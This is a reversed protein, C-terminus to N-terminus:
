SHMTLPLSQAKSKTGQWWCIVSYVISVLPKGVSQVLALPNLPLRNESMAMITVDGHREYHRVSVEIELMCATSPPAVCLHCGGKSTTVPHHCFALLTFQNRYRVYVENSLSNSFGVLMCRMEYGRGQRVATMTTSVGDPDAYVDRTMGFDAVKVENNKGM